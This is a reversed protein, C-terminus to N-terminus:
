VSPLECLGAPKFKTFLAKAHINYDIQNQGLTCQISPCNKKISNQLEFTMDKYIYHLYITIVIFHPRKVKAESNIIFSPM